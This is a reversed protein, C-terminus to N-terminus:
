DVQNAVSREAVNRQPDFPADSRTYHVLLNFRTGDKDKLYDLGSKGDVFSDVGCGVCYTFGDNPGGCILCDVEENTPKRKLDILEQTTM